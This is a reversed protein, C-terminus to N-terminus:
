DPRRRLLLAVDDTAKAKGVLARMVAGATDEAV